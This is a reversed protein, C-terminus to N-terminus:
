YRAVTLLAVQKEAGLQANKQAGPRAKQWQAHKLDHNKPPQRPGNQTSWNTNHPTRKTGNQTSWHTSRPTSRQAQKKTGQKAKDRAGEHWKAHELQHRKTPQRTGVKHAGTRAKARAGEHGLEHTKTWSDARSDTSRQLPGLPTGLITGRICQGGCMCTNPPSYGVDGAM